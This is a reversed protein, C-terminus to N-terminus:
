YVVEFGLLNEDVPQETPVVSEVWAVEPGKRCLSILTQIKAEDGQIVAEVAKDERNKVWGVIHLKDAERQMWARYGVGVVDGSILLHYNKM